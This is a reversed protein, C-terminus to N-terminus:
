RVTVSGGADIDGGVKACRVSGGADVVGGVNECTVSGGADINGKVDGCQVSCTTTVNVPEGKTIKLEVVGQADKSVVKGDVMVVNHRISVNGNGVSIVKGNVIIQM